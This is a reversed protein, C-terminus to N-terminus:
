CHTPHLLSHAQLLDRSLPEPDPKVAIFDCTTLGSLDLVVHSSFLNLWHESNPSMNCTNFQGHGRSRKSFFVSKVTSSSNKKHRAQDTLSVGLIRTQRGEEGKRFVSIDPGRQPTTCIQAGCTSNSDAFDFFRGLSTSDPSSGGVTFRMQGHRRITYM